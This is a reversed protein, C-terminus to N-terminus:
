YTRDVEMGDQEGRCGTRACEGSTAPGQGTACGGTARRRCARREWWHSCFTLSSGGRRKTEAIENCLASYPLAHASRSTSAQQLCSSAPQAGLILSWSYPLPDTSPISCFAASANRTTEKLGRGGQLRQASPQEGLRPRRRAAANPAAASPSSSTTPSSSSSSM